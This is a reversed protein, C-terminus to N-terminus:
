IVKFLIVFDKNMELLNNENISIKPKKKEDDWQVDIKHTNSKVDEIKEKMEVNVNMKLGFPVKSQYKLPINKKEIENNVMKGQLNSQQIDYKEGITM